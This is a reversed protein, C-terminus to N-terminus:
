FIKNWSTGDCGWQHGNATNFFFSGATESTCPTTTGNTVSRVAGGVQFATTSAVPTSTGTPNNNIWSRGNQNLHVGFATSETQTNSGALSGSSTAFTFRGTTTAYFYQNPNPTTTSFYVAYGTAGAIANWTINLAQSDGDVTGLVAESPTSTGNGDLAAVQFYWGTPTTSALTGATTSAIDTITPAALPAGFSWGPANLSAVTSTRDGQVIDVLHTLFANPYNAATAGGALYITLAIVLGGAGLGINKVVTNM